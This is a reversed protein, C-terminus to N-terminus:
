ANLATDLDEMLDEPDELGASYRVMNEPVGAKAREEPGLQYHTTAAPQIAVTQSSGLHTTHVAVSLNDIFKRTEELGGKVNFSMMSSFASM